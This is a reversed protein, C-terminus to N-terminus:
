KEDRYKYHFIDHHSFVKPFLFDELITELTFSFDERDEDKEEYSCVLVQLPSPLFLISTQCCLFLGFSFM